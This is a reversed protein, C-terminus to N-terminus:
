RLWGPSRRHGQRHAEHASSRLTTMRAPVGAPAAQGDAHDRQGRGQIVYVHPPRHTM